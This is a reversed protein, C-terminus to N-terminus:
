ETATSAVHAERLQRADVRDPAGMLLDMAKKMSDGEDVYVPAPKMRNAVIM